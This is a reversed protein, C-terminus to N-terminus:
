FHKGKKSQTLIRARDACEAVSNLIKGPLYQSIPLFSLFSQCVSHSFVNSEESMIFDHKNKKVFFIPKQRRGVVFYDASPRSIV